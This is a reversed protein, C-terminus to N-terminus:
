YSTAREIGEEEGKIKIIDLAAIGQQKTFVYFGILKAYTGNKRSDKFAEIMQKLFEYDLYSNYFEPIKHYEFQQGFKM